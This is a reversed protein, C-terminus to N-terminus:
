YSDVNRLLIFKKKNKEINCNITITKNYNKEGKYHIKLQHEGIPLNIRTYYISHPLTQWNRTDCKETMANIIDLAAGATKDKENVSLMLAKKTAFRVFSQAIERFMRDSLTKFAIDNINECIEAKKSIENTEIYIENTLPKRELYKPFCIRVIRLNEFGQKENQSKDGIYIPFSMGLEDNVFTVWGDRSNTKVFNIYWESKIPSLGNDFFLIIEGENNGVFHDYKMSFINEYSRLYDYFGCIYSTRLLDKKLQEPVDISFNKKYDNNYIEYANRYAIFANNYDNKSEYIMGMILHGLADRQYKNKYDKYKDNLKNLKINMRKAEILAEDYNGMMLYNLSTYYNLIIPEFDEPQYLKISPNVAFSLIETAYNKQQDEIIREAINFYKNSEAYNNLLAYTIGLNLNYLLANHPKNGKKSNKEIIELAEKFNGKEFSINYNYNQQYYTLCSVFLFLM